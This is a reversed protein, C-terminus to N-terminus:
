PSSFLLSVLSALSGANSLNFVKSVTNTNTNGQNQIAALKEKIEAETLSTNFESHLIKQLRIICRDLTFFEASYEEVLSVFRYPDANKKIRKDASELDEEFRDGKTESSYVIVRKEPHKKKLASVLGLGENSFGLSKGVGHIDVFIIQADKVISADLNDIDHTSHTNLWGSKKLIDVVQFYNDDVFLINTKNKRTELDPERFELHPENKKFLKNFM